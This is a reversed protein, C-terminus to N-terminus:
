PGETVAQRPIVLRARFIRKSVPEEGVVDVNVDYNGPSLSDGFPIEMDHINKPLPFHQYGIATARGIENVALVILTLDFDRGTGNSVKVSGDIRKGSVRARRGWVAGLPSELSLRFSRRAEGVPTSSDAVVAIFQFPAINEATGDLEGKEELTWGRPLSGNSVHWRYPETGGSAQLKARYPQFLSAAPLEASLISLGAPPPSEARGRVFVLLCLVLPVVRPLGAMPFNYADLVSKVYM